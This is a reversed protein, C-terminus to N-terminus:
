ASSRTNYRPSKRIPSIDTGAVRKFASGVSFLKDNPSLMYISRPDCSKKLYSNNKYSELQMQLSKILKQLYNRNLRYDEIEDAQIDLNKHVQITYKQYKEIEDLFEIESEEFEEIKKKYDEIEMELAKVQKRLKSMNDLRSSDIVRTIVRMLVETDLGDEGKLKLDERKQLLIKGIYEIAKKEQEATSYNDRVNAGSRLLITQIEGRM